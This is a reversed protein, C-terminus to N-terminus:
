DEEERVLRIRDAYRLGSGSTNRTEARFVEAVSSNAITYLRANFREDLWILHENIKSM